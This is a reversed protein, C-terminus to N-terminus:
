VRILNRGLWILVVAGLTAVLISYLNFGTVGPAGFLNFIFGGVLSGTIGLVIDMITGQRTDTKMIISTIWGAFFGLIIWYLISMIETTPRFRNTGEWRDEKIRIAM